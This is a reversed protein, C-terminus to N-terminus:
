IISMKIAGKEEAESFDLVIKIMQSLEKDDERIVIKEKSM